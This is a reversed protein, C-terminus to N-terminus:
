TVFVCRWDPSLRLAQHKGHSRHRLSAAAKSPCPAHRTCHSGDTVRRSSVCNADQTLSASNPTHKNSNLKEVGSDSYEDEDRLRSRALTIGKCTLPFTLRFRSNRLKQLHCVRTPLCGQQTGTSGGSPYRCEM